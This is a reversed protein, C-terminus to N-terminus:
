ASSKGDAPLSFHFTTGRIANEAVWIVGGHAAIISRAISLGMGMGAPKTTYFPEFVKDCLDARIGTGADQVAVHVADVGTNETRVVIIRDGNSVDTMAEMANVVLNLAVQALESRDGRVIVPDPDLDLTITLNRILADSSLLRVVDRILDNLDLSARQVESKRLLARLRHLVAAARKDDEVIDSLINRLEETDPPSADLFRRGAQANTLIGTLPQSLEHALSATLEGVTTVRTFHALEHRSRQAELEARKRETIDTHSVVAGGEPRNLPVVSMAFWREPHAAAVPYELSFGSRSGDLVAEIGSLSDYAHPAGLRAAERCIDRYNAGVGVLTKGTGGNDHESRTWSENVAIIWGERDLVAVNSSLSALIASKILESSRLADEAQKRALANGFVEAVLHLSQVLDAPWSRGADMTFFLSGGLVRDGALFPIMLASKIRYRRLSEADKAAGADLEALDSFVVTHANVLHAVLWPVEDRRVMRPGPPFGPAIWSYAAILEEHSNAFRFLTLGDVRVFEGVRGLWTEIAGDMEDSALHVFAGSLRSLLEEFRLRESVAAAVARREEILAALCVIPIAVVSLVVQVAHVSEALPLLTFPGSGHTGAWIAVLATALLSLSAGRTGFRVAAWLLFPLLFALATSPSGTIAGLGGAPGAFVAIAVTLLAVGLVAAELRQRRSVNRGWTPGATAVTLIAPVLTLETLVNSLFRARFVHWFAEGHFAAVAAADPFSSIFPALLVAGGIFPVVRRLTDLRAPADSFRRVFLAAVLAEACNTVFLVLVLSTPLAASLEVVLHAPLAALLYIWWRRAPTLLLAATLIANPPWLVSPTAPPFRLIFGVNAGVYYAVAVLLATAVIRPGPRTMPPYILEVEQVVAYAKLGVSTV